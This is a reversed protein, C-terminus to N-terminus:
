KKEKLANLLRAALKATQFNSDTVIVGAKKLDERLKPANQPDLKSGCVNAILTFNDGRKARAASIEELFSGVPDEHVGPGTIFDLTIVAVSEDALEKKLRKLRLKPEFVPHPADATFDEAGLDLVTNEYSEEKDALKVTYKTSLNSYLKVGACNASYYILGEETFTGGCYLGRLYKQKKGYKKLERSAIEDLERDSYGFAPAKGRLLAVAKVAAEELSHAGVTKHWKFLGENGGLFVAVVPKKCGDAATLVKEMVKIDALKSVLVIVETNKDKELMQIGQLMVIGGIEPYLDRGGTGILESIGEGMSEILCAVEQAGSGSAGVVGVRGRTLVSGAGLCVGGIQAVGCDPGMMLLGHEVAYKKLTLEEALSVNDSFMFVHYGKQLAKMGQEAAYEGPLSIQVVDFKGPTLEEDDLSRYVKGAKRGKNLTEEMLALAAMVAKEEGSAALVLDNAGADAPIVYGNGELIERNAPTCMAAEVNVVGEIKRAGDGVSMLTVSDVYRNRKLVIKNM